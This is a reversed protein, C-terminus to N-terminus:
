SDLHGIIGYQVKILNKIFASQHVCPWNQRAQDRLSRFQHYFDAEWSCEVLKWPIRGGLEILEMLEMLEMLKMLKM